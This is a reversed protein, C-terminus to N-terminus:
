YWLKESYYITPQRDPPLTIIDLEIKGRSLMEYCAESDVFRIDLKVEPYTRTFDKSTYTLRRLGVPHSTAIALPGKM